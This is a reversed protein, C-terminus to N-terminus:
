RIIKTDKNRTETTTTKASPTESTTKTVTRSSGVPESHCGTSVLVFAASGVCFTLIPFRKFPTTM